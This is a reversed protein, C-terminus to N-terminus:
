SDSLTLAEVDASGVFAQHIKTRNHRARDDINFIRGCECTFKQSKKEKDKDICVIKYFIYNKKDMVYKIIKNNKLIM